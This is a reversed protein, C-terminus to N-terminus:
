GHKGVDTIDKVTFYFKAREVYSTWDGSVLDFPGLMGHTAM